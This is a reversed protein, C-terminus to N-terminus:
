GAAAPAVSAVMTLEGAGGVQRLELNGQRPDETLLNGEPTPFMLTEIKEEKPLKLDSTAEIALSGAPGKRVSLKITLTGPKGTQDVRKVLESMKESAEPILTGNKARLLVDTVPRIPM